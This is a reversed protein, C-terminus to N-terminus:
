VCQGEPGPTRPSSRDTSAWIGMDVRQSGLSPAPVLRPRHVANPPAKLGPLMTLPTTSIHPSGGPKGCVRQVGPGQTTKRPLSKIPAVTFRTQLPRRGVHEAVEHICQRGRPDKLPELAPPGRGWCSHPKRPVQGGEFGLLTEQPRLPVPDQLFRLAQASSFHILEPPPRRRWQRARRGTCGAM